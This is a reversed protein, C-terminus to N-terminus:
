PILEYHHPIHHIHSTFHQPIFNLDVKSCRKDFSKSGRICVNSMMVASVTLAGSSIEDTMKVNSSSLSSLVSWVSLLGALSMYM